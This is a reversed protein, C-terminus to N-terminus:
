AIGAYTVTADDLSVDGYVTSLRLVYGDYGLYRGPLSLSGDRSTITIDQAQATPVFMFLAAFIAASWLM